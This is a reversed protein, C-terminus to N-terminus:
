ARLRAYSLGETCRELILQCMVRLFTEQTIDEALLHDGGLLRYLYGLLPGHHREVLVTLSATDGALVGMMLQEDSLRDV